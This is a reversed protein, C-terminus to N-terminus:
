IRARSGPLERLADRLVGDDGDVDSVPASRRFRLAGPLVGGEGDPQPALPAPFVPPLGVLRGRARADHEVPSARPLRRRGEHPRHGRGARAGGRAARFQRRALSRRPVHARGRHRAAIAGVAGVVEDIRCSHFLERNLAFTTATTASTSGSCPSAPTTSCAASPYSTTRRPAARGAMYCFRRPGETAAPQASFHGLLRVGAGCDVIEDRSAALLGGLPAAVLAAAVALRGVLVPRAPAALRAAPRIGAVAHPM